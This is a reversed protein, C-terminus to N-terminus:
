RDVIQFLRDDEVRYLLPAVLVAPYTASLRTTEELAFAIADELEYLPLSEDFHSAAAAEDWGGREEKEKVGSM